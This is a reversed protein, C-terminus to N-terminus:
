CQIPNGLVREANCARKTQDIERRVEESAADLAKARELEALAASYNGQERYTQARAVYAAVRSKTQESLVPANVPPSEVPKV